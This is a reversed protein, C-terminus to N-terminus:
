RAVDAPAAASAAACVAGLDVRRSFALLSMAYHPWRQDASSDVRILRYFVREVRWHRESTFVWALYNGLPVHVAVLVVLVVGALVVSNM